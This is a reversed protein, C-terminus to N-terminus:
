FSVEVIVCSFDSMTSGVGEESGLDVVWMPWVVKLRTAPRVLDWDECRDGRL